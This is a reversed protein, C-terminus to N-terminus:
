IDCQMLVYFFGNKIDVWRELVNINKLTVDYEENSLAQFEKNNKIEVVEIKIITNKVLSNIANSEAMLWSSAEYEYKSSIGVAYNKTISNPINSVWSPKSTYKLNIEEYSNSVSGACSSDAVLYVTINNKQFYDLVKLKKVQQKIKSSDFSEDRSRDTNFTGIKTRWFFDSGSYNLSKYKTLLLGANFIAFKKGADSVYNSNLIVSIGNKCEIESQYIFWRPYSQANSVYNILFFLIFKKM